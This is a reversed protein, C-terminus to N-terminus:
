IKKKLKDPRYLLMRMSYLVVILSSIQHLVAGQMVSLIGTSAFFLGTIDHRITRLVARGLKISQPVKGLDDTMLVVDAAEVTIDTGSSGMALGVDAAALSPADNIGDGVMAVKCTQKKYTELAAIKEEPLLEAQIHDIGV